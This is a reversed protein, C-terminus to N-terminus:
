NNEDMPHFMSRLTNIFSDKLYGGLTRHRAEAEAIKAEVAQTKVIYEEMTISGNEYAIRLNELEQQYLVVEDKTTLTNESLM